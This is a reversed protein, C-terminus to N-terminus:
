IRNIEVKNGQSFITDGKKVTCYFMKNTLQDIAQQSLSFFVFHSKFSKHIM